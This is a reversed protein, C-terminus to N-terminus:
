GFFVPGGKGWPARLPSVEDFVADVGSGWTERLAVRRGM